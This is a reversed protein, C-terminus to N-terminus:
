DTARVAEVPLRETSGDPRARFFAGDRILLSEFIARGTEEDRRPYVQVAIVKGGYLPTITPVPTHGVLISRVGFRERILDIDDMTAIPFDKADPFYGRYWLPGLNKMVFDAREQDAASGNLVARVTENIDALTLKRDVVARSIGGHLCLFENIKLVAPKTRLWEGLVSQPTFLEAYSGVGLVEAARPYRPNLYRLDGRLVMTEHNGLVLHVGGGAKAAEAELKYILWLIETQHAGRDFVDGLFVLQGRDFNWGLKGDIIEHRQLMDVLIELEGHTDAVVFFPSAAGVTVTHRASGASDRLAVEFAPVSGVAPVTITPRPGLTRVRKQPGASTEEVSWAESRGDTGRFVYPGDAQALAAVTRLTVLLALVVFLLRCRSHMYEDALRKFM